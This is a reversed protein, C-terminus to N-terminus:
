ASLVATVDVDGPQLTVAAGGGPAGGGARAAFAAPGGPGGTTNPRLGEEYITELEPTGSGLVAAYDAARRVADTLAARRVEAEAARRAQQTLEWSIGQLNVGRRQGVSSVWAGLADFDQFRVLVQSTARFKTITTDSDKVYEKVSQSRVQEAGWWTAAGSDVHERAQETVARHAETSEALVAARDQGELTIAIRVQAREPRHSHTARGHVSIRTM